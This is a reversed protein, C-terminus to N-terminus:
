RDPWATPTLVCRDHRVRAMGGLLVGPRHIRGMSGFVYIPGSAPYDREYPHARRWKLVAYANRASWKLNEIVEERKTIEAVAARAEEEAAELAEKAAAIAEGEAPSNSEGQESEKASATVRLKKLKAQAERAKKKAWELATEADELRVQENRILLQISKYLAEVSGDSVEAPAILIGEKGPHPAPGLPSEGHPDLLSCPSNRVYEYPM